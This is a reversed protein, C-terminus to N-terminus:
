MTAWNLNSVIGLMYYVDYYINATKTILVEEEWEPSFTVELNFYEPLPGHASKRELPEGHNQCM